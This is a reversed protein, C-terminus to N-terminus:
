NATDIIDLDPLNCSVYTTGGNDDIVVTRKKEQFWETPRDAFITNAAAEAENVTDVNQFGAEEVIEQYKLVTEPKREWRLPYAAV